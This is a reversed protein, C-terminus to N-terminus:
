SISTVNKNVFFRSHKYPRLIDLCWESIILCIPLCTSISMWFQINRRKLLFFLVFSILCTHHFEQLIDKNFFLPIDRLLPLWSSLIVLWWPAPLGSWDELYEFDPEWGTRQSMKDKWYDNKKIALVEIETSADPFLPTIAICPLLKYWSLESFFSITERWLHLPFVPLGFDNGMNFNEIFNSIATRSEHFSHYHIWACSLQKLGWSLLPWGTGHWSVFLNVPEHHTSSELQIWRAALDGQRWLSIVFEEIWESSKWPLFCKKGMFKRLVKLQDRKESVSLIGSSQFLSTLASPLNLSLM